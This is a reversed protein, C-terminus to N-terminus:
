LLIIMKSPERILISSIKGLGFKNVAGVSVEYNFEYLTAVVFRTDRLDCVALKETLQENTFNLCYRHGKRPTIVADPPNWSITIKSQDAFVLTLNKVQKLAGVCLM